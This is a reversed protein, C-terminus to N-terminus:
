IIIAIASVGGGGWWSMLHKVKDERREDRMSLIKVQNGLATEDREPRKGEHQTAMKVQEWATTKYHWVDEWVYIRRLSGCCNGGPRIWSDCNKCYNLSDCSNEVSRRGSDFSDYLAWSFLNGTWFLIWGEGVASTMHLRGKPLTIAWFIKLELVGLINNRSCHRIFRNRLKM